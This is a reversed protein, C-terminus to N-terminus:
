WSRTVLCRKVIEAITNDIEQVASMIFGTGSGLGCPVSRCDAPHKNKNPFSGDPLLALLREKRAQLENIATAASTPLELITTMTNYQQTYSLPAVPTVQSGLLVLSM